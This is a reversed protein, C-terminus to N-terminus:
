DEYWGGIGHVTMHLDEVGGGPILGVSPKNWSRQSANDKICAWLIEKAEHQRRPIGDNANSLYEEDFHKLHKETNWFVVPSM